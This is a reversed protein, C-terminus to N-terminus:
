LQGVDILKKENEYQIMVHFVKNTEDRVLLLTSSNVNNDPSYVISQSLESM